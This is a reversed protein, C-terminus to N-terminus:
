LTRVPASNIAMPTRLQASLRMMTARRWCPSGWVRTAEAAGTWLGGPLSAPMPAINWDTRVAM